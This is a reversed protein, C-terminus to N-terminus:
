LYPKSIPDFQYQRGALNSKSRNSSPELQIRELATNGPIIPKFKREGGICTRYGVCEKIQLIAICHYFLVSSQTCKRPLSSTLSNRESKNKKGWCFEKNGVTAIANILNLFLLPTSVAIITLRCTTQDKCGTGM